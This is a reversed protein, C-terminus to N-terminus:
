ERFRTQYLVWLASSPPRRLVKSVADEKGSPLIGWFRSPMLLRDYWFLTMLYLLIAVALSALSLGRVVAWFPTKPV